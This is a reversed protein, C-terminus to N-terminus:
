GASLTLDGRRLDGAMGPHAAAPDTDLEVIRNDTDVHVVRPRYARATADDM